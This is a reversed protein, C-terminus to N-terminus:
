IPALGPLGPSRGFQSFQLTVESLQGIGVASGPAVPRCFDFLHQKGNLSALKGQNPYVTLSFTEHLIDFYRTVLFCNNSKAKTKGTKRSTPVKTNQVYPMSSSFANFPNHYEPSQSAYWISLQIERLHMSIWSSLGANCSTCWSLNFWILDFVNWLLIGRWPQNLILWNSLINTLFHLCWVLVLFNYLWTNLHIAMTLAWQKHVGM